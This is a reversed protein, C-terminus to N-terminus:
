LLLEVLGVDRGLLLGEGGLGRLPVLAQGSGDLTHLAGHGVGLREAGRRLVGPLVAEGRVVLLREGVALYAIM